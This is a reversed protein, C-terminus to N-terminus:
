GLFRRPPQGIVGPRCRFIGGAAPEDRLQTPSLGYRATTIFLEDLAHGGFTCSTVRSAPIEIALELRGEPHYRRVARGDWFAVWIHGESDVCLGDPAGDAPDIDVIRRRATIGGSQRDFDFADLRQSATDVYYMTAGDPSWDIGNSITVSDLVRAVDGAPSLRYLSGAGREESYAMSGAWFCGLPDCKGDNMRTESAGNGIPAIVRISDADPDLLAFGEEVALVLGGQERLAVSGVPQGVDLSWAEGSDPRLRWVRGKLIDM